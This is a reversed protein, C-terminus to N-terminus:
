HGEDEAGLIRELEAVLVPLDDTLTQWLIEHDVFDYGHILRNRMGTIQNWPIQSHTARTQATVRSAAEGVIEILRVLALNLLRDRELDDKTTRQAFSTAERAHDLMHRLRLEDDHSQM